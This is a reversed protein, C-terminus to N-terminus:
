ILLEVERGGQGFYTQSFRLRGNPKRSECRFRKIFVCLIIVSKANANHNAAQSTASLNPRSCKALDILVITGALAGVTAAAMGDAPESKRSSKKDRLVV